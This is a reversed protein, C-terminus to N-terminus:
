WIVAWFVVIRSLTVGNGLPIPVVRYFSKLHNATKCRLSHPRSPCRILNTECRNAKGEQFHEDNSVIEMTSGGQTLIVIM